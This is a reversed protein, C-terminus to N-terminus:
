AKFCKVLGQRVHREKAADRNIGNVLDKARITGLMVAVHMLCPSLLLFYADKEESFARSRDEDGQPDLRTCPAQRTHRLHNRLLEITKTRRGLPAQANVAHQEPTVVVRLVVCTDDRHLACDEHGPAQLVCTITALNGTHRESKTPHPIPLFRDRHVRM